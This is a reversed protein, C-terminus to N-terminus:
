NGPTVQLGGLEEMVLGKLADQIDPVEDAREIIQIEDLDM